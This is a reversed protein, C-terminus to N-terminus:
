PVREAAPSRIFASRQTNLARALEKAEAPTFDGDLMLLGGTLPVSVIPSMILRDNIFVALRAGANSRTVEALLLAAGQDLEIQVLHRKQSSFAAAKWVNDETLFPEPAVHLPQGREDAVPRWNEHARASALHFRLHVPQPPRAESAAPKGLSTCGALAIWGCCTAISPTRAARIM